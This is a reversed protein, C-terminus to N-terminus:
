AGPADLSVQVTTIKADLATVVEATLDNGLNGGLVVGRELM